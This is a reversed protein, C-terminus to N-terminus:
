FPDFDFFEFREFEFSAEDVFGPRLSRVILNLPAPKFRDPLPAGRLQVANSFGAYIAAPARHFRCAAAAVANGSLSDAGLRAFTKVIVCVPIRAHRVATTVLVVQSSAHIAYRAHPASLRWRLLEPTWQHSWAPGPSFDISSGLEAFAASQLYKEDVWISQIRGLSPWLAPLVHVPLPRILRFGLRGTYGPTSSANPMGVLIGDQFREVAADFCGQSIETMLGRGRASQSVAINLPFVGPVTAGLRHYRQPIGGIHAIPRANDYRNIEIAAGEPNQRYFWRLYRLDRFREIPFVEYLIQRIEELDASAGADMRDVSVSPERRESAAIPERM